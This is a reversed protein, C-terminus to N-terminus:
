EPKEGLEELGRVAAPSVRVQALVARYATVACERDGQERCTDALQLRALYHDPRDALTREFRRRAEPLHQERHELQGFMYQISSDGPEDRELDILLRRAETLDGTGFAIAVLSLPDDPKRGPSQVLREAYPKASAFDGRGRYWDSLSRLLAALQPDKALGKEWIGRAEDQRGQRMASTGMWWLMEASLRDLGPATEGDPVYRALRSLADEGLGSVLHDDVLARAELDATLRHGSDTPHCYDLMLEHGVIGDPSADAYAKEVDLWPAGSEAAVARIARNIATLARIPVPDLDRARQYAARAEDIRGLLELARARHFVTAAHRDDIAMARDLEVLAESPMEADLMQLGHALHELFQHQEDPSLPYAFALYEPKWDRLNTPQTLLLAPVGAASCSAVMARLRAAFLAAIRDKEELTFIRSENRSVDFGFLDDSGDPASLALGARAAGIGTSLLAYLRSGALWSRLALLREGGELVRQYAAREVFENHGLDFVILDPHLALVSPLLAQIRQSGYSMAGLNAVEVVRDPAMAELRHALFRPHSIPDRYPFGYTSSGGLVAIRISGGPRVRRLHVPNFTHSADPRLVWENGTREFPNVAPAFGAAPDYPPLRSALAPIRLVGEALAAVLAAVVSALFWRRGGALPRDSPSPREGSSLAM